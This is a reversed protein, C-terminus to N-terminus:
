DRSPAGNAKRPLTIYIELGPPASNAVGIEGGHAEIIRRAISLGLGTGKPKTTYFPEFLRIKQHSHLGPGNDRVAIRLAPRDGLMAEGFTIRLQVRGNAAAFSNDFINRFVQILRFYDAECTLDLGATEEEVQCDKYPFLVAVQALAERLVADIHFSACSLRLPAAYSRVDEFLRLLDDQAHQARALLNAAEPQAGFRWSLRELCARTRQLANRSEHALASMVQGITALREAQMARGQAERLETIDHGVLLITPPVMPDAAPLSRASWVVFRDKGDCTRLRCECGDGQGLDQARRLLAKGEPRDDKSLLLTCWDRGRLDELPFGCTLQVCPNSRLIRGASDVVLILVPAVRVLSNAFDKEILFAQEAQRERTIDRLLWRLGVPEDEGLLTSTVALEVNRLGGRPPQLRAEWHEVAAQKNRLRQLRRYFTHRSPGAVFFGLLKGYLFEKRTNLLRAAALNAELIIAGADTVLYGDSAFEFLEQYRLRYAQAQRLVEALGDQDDQDM